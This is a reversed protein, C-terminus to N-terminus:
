VNRISQEQCEHRLSVSRCSGSVTSITVPKTKLKIAMDENGGVSAGSQHLKFTSCRLLRGGLANKLLKVVTWSASEYSSFREVVRQKFPCHFNWWQMEGNSAGSPKWRGSKSACGDWGGGEVVSQIRLPLKM